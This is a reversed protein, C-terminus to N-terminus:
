GTDIAKLELYRGNPLVADGHLEARRTRLTLRGGNPMADRANIALNMVALELQTADSVITLGDQDLDLVLEINAGLTRALLDAMGALVEAAVVPKMELKQQRSFALLQRTLSAGRDAASLGNEAWRRVTAEDGAKGVILEFAGHIAQLLNNFDHAIGGTLQGLAELKQSQRLAAEAVTRAEIEENLRTNARALRAAARTILGLLLLALLTLVVLGVHRMDFAMATEPTTELYVFGLRQGQESVSRSLVVRGAQRLTEPAKVALPPPTAGPRALLAVPRGEPGYVGAAAVAPNRMLAALYQRMAASDDFALAAGVSGALVDTQAEAQQLTARRHAAESRVALAASVAVLVASAIWLVAVLRSESDRRM